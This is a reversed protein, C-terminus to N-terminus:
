TSADRDIWFKRIILVFRELNRISVLDHSLFQADQESQRLVGDMKSLCKEFETRPERIYDYEDDDDDDDDDENVFESVFIGEDFAEKEENYKKYFKPFEEEIREANRLSSM